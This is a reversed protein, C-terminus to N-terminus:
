CKDRRSLSSKLLMLRLDIEQLSMPSTRYSYMGLLSVLEHYQPHHNNLIEQRAEELVEIQHEVDEESWWSKLINVLKKLINM